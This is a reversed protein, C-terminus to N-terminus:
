TMRRCSSLASSDIVSATADRVKHYAWVSLSKRADVDCRAITESSPLKLGSGSATVQITVEPVRPGVAEHSERILLSGPDALRRWTPM